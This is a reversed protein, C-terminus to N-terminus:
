FSFYYVYKSPIMNIKRKKKEKKKKKEKEKEFFLSQTELVSVNEASMRSIKPTECQRATADGQLKHHIKFSFYLLAIIM